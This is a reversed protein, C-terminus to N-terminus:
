NGPPSVEGFVDAPGLGFFYTLERVTDLNAVFGRLMTSADQATQTTAPVPNGQADTVFTLEGTVPDASAVQYALQALENAHQLMRAGIGKAVPRGLDANVTETGYNKAAYEYGTGPDRFVVLQSNPIALKQADGLANIAVQDIFDMTQTTRGFRFELLIARYQQEWGLLPDLLVAGPPYTLSTTAPNSPDYKDWPLYQVTPNTTATPSAPIVYPAVTFIQAAQSQDLAQTPSQAVAVNALLRRVQNPYLTVYNLNKYRGDVYDDKANSVFNNYAELLYHAALAKEYASGVQSQYQSWWYGKTYVYDNHLWRGQGDGLSVTVGNSLPSGDPNTPDGGEWSRGWGDPVGDPPSAATLTYPGPAPRTMARTFMALGDASGLALPMLSGPTSTPDFGPQTLLEVGLGLTKTLAQIKDWYRDQLRDIAAYTNFTVRNRRFDDFIYRNEYTSILYQLQEYPDAGADFRFVAVNGVDAFEDGGFMYPHRVRGKSDVAFNAVLEPRVQTTAQSFQNAASMDREAVYDLDPGSCQKELPDSPDGTWGPRDTCAGLLAYKDAYQSYHNGGIPNAFIQGFGDLAVLYDLGSGRPTGGVMSVTMSKEVDVVNAYGFRMAAKDYAGIDNMDQTQDGPYDMVTTSAWKWILGTQEQDTVPDVWRPGVCDTGNTHPTTADLDGPAGCYHEQGNRTRLQWYETHYNLADFSGAFNHRLGMSHGMEHAIVSTHFQERIWQHLAQDRAAKEAAYNSDGANPLPFLKAAQRALGV